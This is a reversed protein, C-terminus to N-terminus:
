TMPKFLLRNLEHNVRFDKKQLATPSPEEIQILARFKDDHNPM